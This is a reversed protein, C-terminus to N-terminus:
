RVRENPKRGYIIDFNDRYYIISHNREFDDKCIMYNNSNLFRHDLEPDFYVETGNIFAKAAVHSSDKYDCFVPYLEVGELAYFYRLLNVYGECVASKKMLAKYSSNISKYRNDFKKFTGGELAYQHRRSLAADDYDINKIFSYIARLIDDRTKYTRHLKYYINLVKSNFKEMMSFTYVYNDRFGIKESFLTGIAKLLELEEENFLVYANIDLILHISKHSKLYIILENYFTKDLNPIDYIILEKLNKLGNIGNIEKLLHCSSIQLSEINPFNSLDITEIHDDNEISLENLTRLDSLYSTDIISEDNFELSDMACINLKELGEYSSISCLETITSIYVDLEPVFRESKQKLESTNRIILMKDKSM